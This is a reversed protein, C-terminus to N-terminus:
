DHKYMCTNLLSFPPPGLRWLRNAGSPSHRPKALGGILSCRIWNTYIYIYIRGEIVMRQLQQNQAHLEDACSIWAVLSDDGGM